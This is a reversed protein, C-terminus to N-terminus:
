TRDFIWTTIEPGCVGEPVIEEIHLQKGVISAKRIWSSVLNGIQDDRSDYLGMKNKFEGVTVEDGFVSFDQTQKITYPAGYVIITETEFQTDAIRVVQSIRKSQVDENLKKAVGSPPLHKTDRCHVSNLSYTGSINGLPSRGNEGSLMRGSSMASNYVDFWGRLNASTVGGVTASELLMKLGILIRTKRVEYFKIRKLESIMNGIAKHVKVRAPAELGDEIGRNEFAVLGVVSKEILVKQGFFLALLVIALLLIITKV